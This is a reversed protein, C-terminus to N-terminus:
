VLIWGLCLNGIEKNAGVNEEVMEHPLATEYIYLFARHTLRFAAVRLTLVRIFELAAGLFSETINGEYQLHM